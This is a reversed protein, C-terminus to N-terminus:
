GHLRCKTYAEDPVIFSPSTKGESIKTCTMVGQEVDAVALFTGNLGVETWYSYALVDRRTQDFAVKVGQPQYGGGETIDISALLKCDLDYEVKYLGITTRQEYRSVRAFKDEEHSFKVVFAEGDEVKHHVQQFDFDKGVQIISTMAALYKGNLSLALEHNSSSPELDIALGGLKAPNDKISWSELTLRPSSRRCGTLL